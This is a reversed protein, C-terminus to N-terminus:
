RAMRPTQGFRAKFMRCFSSQDAFGWHAAIDSIPLHGNHQLSRRCEDLRRDRVYSAFSLGNSALAQYLHSRSIRLARCTGDVSLSADSLNTEVYALIRQVSAKQGSRAAAQRPPEDNRGVARAILASLHDMALDQLSEMEDTDITDLAKMYQSVVRGVGQDGRLVSVAPRGLAGLRQRLVEEPITLCFIRFRSDFSVNFPSATDLLYIDGPRVRASEGFQEVSINGEVLMNVFFRIEDQRHIGQRTLHVTHADAELSSVHLSRLPMAQMRGEFRRGGGEPQLPGFAGCVADFWYSFQETEDVAETSWEEWVTKRRQPAKGCKAM